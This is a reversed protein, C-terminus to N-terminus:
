KRYNVSFPPLTSSGDFITLTSGISAGVADDLNINVPLDAATNGSVAYTSDAVNVGGGTSVAVRGGPPVTATTGTWAATVNNVKIMDDGDADIARVAVYYYKGAGSGPVNTFTVQRTAKNIVTDTFVADGVPDGDFPYPNASTNKILYIIFHDIDAVLEVKDGSFTTTAKTSFSKGNAFNIKFSINGGKQGKGIDIIKNQSNANFNVLPSNINCGSLFLLLLAKLGATIIKEKRQMILKKEM